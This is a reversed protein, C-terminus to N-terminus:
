GGRRGITISMILRVMPVVLYGAVRKQHLSSVKGIRILKSKPLTFLGLGGLSWTRM